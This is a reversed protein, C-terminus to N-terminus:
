PENSNRAKEAEKKVVEKTTNANSPTEAPTEKKLEKEEKKKKKKKKVEKKNEVLVTEEVEQTLIEEPESSASPAEQAPNNMALESENM